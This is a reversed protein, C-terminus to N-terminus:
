PLGLFHTNIPCSLFLSLWSELAALKAQLISLSRAWPTTSTKTKIKGLLYGTEQVARICTRISVGNLFKEIRQGKNSCFMAEILLEKTVYEDTFIHPYRLIFFVNTNFNQKMPNIFFDHYFLLMMMVSTSCFCIIFM